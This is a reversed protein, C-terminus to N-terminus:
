QYESYEIRCFYFGRKYFVGNFIETSSRDNRKFTFPSINFHIIFAKFSPIEHYKM